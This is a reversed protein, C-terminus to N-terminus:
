GDSLLLILHSAGGGLRLRGLLERRAPTV